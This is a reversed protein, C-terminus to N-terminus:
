DGTFRALWRAPSSAGLTGFRKRVQAPAADPGQAHARRAEVVQLPTIEDIVMSLLDSDLHAAQEHDSEITKPDLKEDVHQTFFETLPQRLTTPPKTAVDTGAKVLELKQQEKVRRVAEADEAERKASHSRPARFRARPNSARCRITSEKPKKKLLASSAERQTARTYAYHELAEVILKV